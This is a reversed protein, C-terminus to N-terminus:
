KSKLFQITSIQSNAIIAKVIHEGPALRQIPLNFGVNLNAMNTAFSFLSKGDMGIIELTIPTFDPYASREKLKVKYSNVAPNPFGVLHIPVEIMNEVLCSSKFIGVRNISFNQIGNAVYICAKGDLAVPGSFIPTGVGTNGFSGISYPITIQAKVSLCGVLLSIATLTLLRLKFVM